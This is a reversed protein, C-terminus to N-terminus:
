PWDAPGTGGVHKHCQSLCCSHSPADESCCYPKSSAFARSSFTACPGSRRSRSQERSARDDSCTCSAEKPSRLFSIATLRFHSLCPLTIRQSALPLRAVTSRKSSEDGASTVVASEVMTDLAGRFARVLRSPEGFTPGLSSRLDLRRLASLRVSREGCVKEPERLRPSRASRATVVLGECSTQLLILLSSPPRSCTRGARPELPRPAAFVRPNVRM